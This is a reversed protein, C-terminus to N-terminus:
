CSKWTADYLIKWIGIGQNNLIPCDMKFENLEDINLASVCSTPLTDYFLEDEGNSTQKVYTECLIDNLYLECTDGTLAHGSFYGYVKIEDISVLVGERDIFVPLVQRTYPYSTMPLMSLYDLTSSHMEKQGILIHEDSCTKDNIEIVNQLMESVAATIQGSVQKAQPTQAVVTGVLLVMMIAFMLGKKM